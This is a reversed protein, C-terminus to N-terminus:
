QSDILDKPNYGLVGAVEDYMSFLKDNIEDGYMVLFNVLHEDMEPSKYEAGATPSQVVTRVILPCKDIFEDSIYFPFIVSDLKTNSKIRGYSEIHGSLTKYWKTSVFMTSELHFYKIYRSFINNPFRDRFRLPQSHIQVSSRRRCHEVFQIAVEKKSHNTVEYGIENVIHHKAIIEDIIVGFMSTALSVMSFPDTLCTIMNHTDVWDPTNYDSILKANSRFLDM